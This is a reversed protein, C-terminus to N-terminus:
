RKVRKKAKVSTKDLCAEIAAWLKPPTKSYDADLTPSAAARSAEDDYPARGPPYWRRHKAMVNYFHVYANAARIYRDLDIPAELERILRGARREGDAALDGSARSKRASLFAHRRLARRTKRAKL